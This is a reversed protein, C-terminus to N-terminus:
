NRQKGKIGCMGRGSKSEFASRNVKADHVDVSGSISVGQTMFAVDTGHADKNVVRRLRKRAHRGHAVEEQQGGVVRADLRREHLLKACEDALDPRRVFATICALPLRKLIPSCDSGISKRAHSSLASCVASPPVLFGPAASGCGDAKRDFCRRRKQHPRPRSAEAHTFDGAMSELDRERCGM